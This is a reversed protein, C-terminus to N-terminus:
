KVLAPGPTGDTRAMRLAYVPLTRTERHVVLGFREALLARVAALTADPGAEASESGLTAAIDWRASDIPALSGVLQFKQLQYAYELIDRLSANETTFRGGPRRGVFSGSGPDTREKISAADFTASQDQLLGALVLCIMAARM